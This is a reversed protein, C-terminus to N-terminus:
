HRQARMAATVAFSYAPAGADLQINKVATPQAVTVAPDATASFEATDVAGPVVGGQWNAGTNFDGSVPTASWVFGANSVLDLYVDHADYSLSAAYGTPIANAATLSSFTGSVGGTASILTYQGAAYAGGAYTAAVTGAVSANGAVTVEDAAAPGVDVAYTAGAALSLNGNVALTGTGAVGPALTAGDALATGGVTGTGGLTGGSAVSVASGAIAGTVLLTGASVSTAGTYTNAGSLTTTGTGIQGVTGTGSIVSSVALADSRDFALNATSAIQGTGLTGSTGGDGIQLTGGGITTMGTYTNAGTLIVTGPGAQTLQGTGSIANSVTVVDSRSFALSTDDALTVAGTGLTGSTGGDGVELVGATVATTGAYSNAGTLTLDAGSQVLGGSGSIANGVTIPDARDFILTGNDLVDGGGLSGSAGGDGIQLAGASITTTGVYTNAGTLVTTGTGIQAVNGSDIITNPVILVDSRDFSLAGDDSVVGQGLTGDTGGNGIQLTASPNVIRTQGAYTNLGTLIATGTVEDLDGTGSIANGVVFDDTRFLGLVANDIVAGPGLMGAADNDGVQLLGANITTTGSYTNAGDLLLRGNGIKILSGTGSIVGSVETSTNLGGVTLTNAGLNFNGAGAISGASIQGDGAPGSTASFDINGGSQAALM